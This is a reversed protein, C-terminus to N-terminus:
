TVIEVACVKLRDSIRFIEEIRLSIYIISIGKAQLRRVLAFLAGTEQATPVDMILVSANQSLAKAIETLQWYGTALNGVVARPDIDVEM